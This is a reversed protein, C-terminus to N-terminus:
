KGPLREIKLPISQDGLSFRALGPSVSLLTCNQFREGTRVLYQGGPGNVAAISKKPDESVTTGALTANLSPPPPPPPIVPQWEWVSAVQSREYPPHPVTPKREFKRAEAEYDRKPTVPAWVLFAAAYAMSAAAGLVAAALCASRMAEIRKM